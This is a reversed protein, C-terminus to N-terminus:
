CKGAFLVQHRKELRQRVRTIVQKCAPENHYTIIMTQFVLICLKETLHESELSTKRVCCFLYNEFLELKERCERSVCDEITLGHIPPRVHEAIMMFTERDCVLDMWVPNDRSHHMGQLGMILDSPDYFLWQKQQSKDSEGIHGPFGADDEMGPMLPSGIVTFRCAVASPEREILVDQEYVIPTSLSENQVLLKSDRTLGNRTTGDDNPNPSFSTNVAHYNSEAGFLTDTSGEHQSNGGTGNSKGSKAYWRLQSVNERIGLVNGTAAQPGVRLEEQSQVIPMKLTNLGYLTSFKRDIPEEDQLASALIKKITTAHHKKLKKKRKPDHQDAHIKPLKAGFQVELRTKETNSGSAMDSLESMVSTHQSLATATNPISPTLVNDDGNLTGNLIRQQSQLVSQALDPDQENDNFKFRDGDDDDNESNSASSLSTDSTVALLDFTSAIKTRFLTSRQTVGLTERYELSGVNEEKFKGFVATDESLLPSRPSRPSDGAGDDNTRYRHVRVFVTYSIVPIYQGNPGVEHDNDSDSSAAMLPSLQHLMMNWKNKLPMSHRKKSMKKKAGGRDDSSRSISLTTPTFARKLPNKRKMPIKTANSSLAREVTRDDDNPSSLSIIPGSLYQNHQSQQRPVRESDITDFTAM